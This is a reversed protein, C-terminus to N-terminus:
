GEVCFSFVATAGAGGDDGGSAPATFTIQWVGPMFFYLPTVQYTGDPQATVTAHVSSGHGHDPMWEKVGLSLGSMTQGHADKVGLTWTNTGVLPPSPDAAQLTLTWAGDSSPVALGSQYAAVRPDAACSAKPGSDVTGTSGTGAGSCGWLAGALGVRVVAAAARMGM